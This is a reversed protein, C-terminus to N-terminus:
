LSFHNQPNEISAPAFVLFEVFEQFGPGDALFPLDDEAYSVVIAPLCPPPERLMKFGVSGHPSPLHKDSNPLRFWLPHWAGYSVKTTKTSISFYTCSIFSIAPLGGLTSHDTLIRSVTMSLPVFVLPDPAMVVSVAKRVSLPLTRADAM